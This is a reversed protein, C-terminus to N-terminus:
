KLADDCPNAGDSDTAGIMYVTVTGDKAVSFKAVRLRAAVASKLARTLDAQKITAATNAMM